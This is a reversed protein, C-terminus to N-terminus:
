STSATSTLSALIEARCVKLIEDALPSDDPCARSLVVAGVAHALIDIARSRGRERDGDGPMSGDLEIGALLSEIGEAFTMKIAETQRAADGGLAALTCGDSRTDRHWRSVYSQIFEAIDVGESRAATQSFGCAAAEAM